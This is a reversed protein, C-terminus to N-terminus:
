RCMGGLPEVMGAGMVDDVGLAVFAVVGVWRMELGKEEVRLGVLEISGVQV